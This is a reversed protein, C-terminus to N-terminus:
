FFAHGYQSYNKIKEFYHKSNPYRDNPIFKDPIFIMKYLKDPIVIMKYLKDPIFIM